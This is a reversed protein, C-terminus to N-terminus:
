ACSVSLISGICRCFTHLLIAAPYLWRKGIQKSSAIMMGEFYTLVDTYNQKTQLEALETNRFQEITLMKRGRSVQPDHLIYRIQGQVQNAVDEESMGTKDKTFDPDDWNAHAFISHQAYGKPTTEVM